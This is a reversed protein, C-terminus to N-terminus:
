GGHAGRRAWGTTRKEIVAFLEYMAMAMAMAGVVVVIVIVIVVVVVVVLGAFARGMPTSSGASIRLHGTGENAATMESVTTGVVALTIAAKLSTCFRPM